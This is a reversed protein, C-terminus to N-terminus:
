NDGEKLEVIWEDTVDRLAELDEVSPNTGVINELFQKDVKEMKQRIKNLKVFALENCIAGYGCIECTGVSRLITKLYNNKEACNDCYFTM